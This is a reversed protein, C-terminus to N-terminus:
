EHGQRLITVPPCVGHKAAVAAGWLLGMAAAFGRWMAQPIGILAALFVIALVGLVALTVIWSELLFAVVVFGVMAIIVSVLAGTGLTELGAKHQQVYRDVPEGVTVVGAVLRHGVPPFFIRFPWAFLWLGHGIGRWFSRHIEGMKQAAKEIRRTTEESVKFGMLFGLATGLVIGAVLSGVLSTGSVAGGGGVILVIALGAGLPAFRRFRRATREIVRWPALLQQFTEHLIVTRWFHCFSLPLVTKDSTRANFRDWRRVAWDSETYEKEAM